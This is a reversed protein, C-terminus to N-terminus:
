LLSIYEHSTGFQCPMKKKKKDWAESWARFTNPIYVTISQKFPLQPELQTDGRVCDATIEFDRPAESWTGWLTAQSIRKITICM